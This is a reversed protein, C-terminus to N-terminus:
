DAAGLPRRGTGGCAAPCRWPGRQAEDRSREAREVGTGTSPGLASIPMLWHCPQGASTVLEFPPTGRRHTFRPHPVIRRLSTRRRSNLITHALEHGLDQSPRA